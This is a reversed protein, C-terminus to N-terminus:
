RAGLEAPRVEERSVVAQKLDSSFRHKRASDRSQHSGCVTCEGQIAGRSSRGCPIRVSRQLTQFKNVEEGSQVTYTCHSDQESIM